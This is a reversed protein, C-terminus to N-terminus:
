IQFDIERRECVPNHSSFFFVVFFSCMPLVLLEEDTESSVLLLEQWQFCAFLLHVSHRLEQADMETSVKLQINVISLQHKKSVSLARLIECLHVNIKGARVEFVNQIARYKNKLTYCPGVRVRGEALECGSSIPNMNWLTQMFSADVM